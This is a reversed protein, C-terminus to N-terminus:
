LLKRKREYLLEKETSIYKVKKKKKRIMSTCNYKYCFLYIVNQFRQIHICSRSNLFSSTM